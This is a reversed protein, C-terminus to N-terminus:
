YIPSDSKRSSLARLKEMIKDAQEKTKVFQELSSKKRSRSPKGVFPKANRYFFEIQKILTEDM